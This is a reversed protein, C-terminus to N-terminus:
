PQFWVAAVHQTDLYERVSAIKGGEFTILFHYQQNYTRGNKLRGLSEVEMAVQEGEAIAGKVTMVLPGELQGTMGAFLRSIQEKSRTGTVPLQGAKGPLWWTCAPTMLALAAAVDGASFHAFFQAATQKNSEATTM